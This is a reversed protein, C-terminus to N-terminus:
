IYSQKREQGEREWQRLVGVGNEGKRRGREDRGRREDKKVEDGRGGQGM